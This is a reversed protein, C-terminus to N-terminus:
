LAGTPCTAACVGHDRCASSVTLVNFLSRPMPHRWRFSLRQVQALTREREYSRIQGRRDPDPTDGGTPVIQVIDNVTTSVRGALSAFFARRSIAQEADGEPIREPMRQAPLRAQEFRIHLAPPVGAEGLLRNAREVNRAAPHAQRCGASCGACWGRDALLIERERAEARMELLQSVSMGGLCPVRLAERSSDSRPM